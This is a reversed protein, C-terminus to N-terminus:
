IHKLILNNDLKKELNNFWQFAMGKSDNLKIAGSTTPSKLISRGETIRKYTNAFHTERVQEAKSLKNSIGNAYGEIIWFKEMQESIRPASNSIGLNCISATKHAIYNM